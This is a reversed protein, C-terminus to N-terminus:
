GERRSDIDSMSNLLSRKMERLRSIHIQLGNGANNLAAVRAAVAKQDALSPLPIRQRRIGTTNINYNGASSRVEHRLTKRVYQSNILIAVYEPLAKTADLRLRILYSAYVAGKPANEATCCRGVYSPNGNTRVLLIDTASVSYRAQEESSLVVWSLDALDLSGRVVNPIRLIPVAGKRYSDSRVSTGYQCDTLIDGLTADATHSTRNAVREVVAERVAVAASDADQYAVIATEAAWLIEAIRRQEDIPPIAFEQQALTKWNITPSLSGVSIAMARQFFTESQMFFPLFAPLAVDERARLVLAHASCIGEFDAVALKRQYARRRGFIIDGPKFRLKTAEVDDPTGWRRIKLSDPDLHELGVYYEVGAESPNDVRDTISNAMQDFRVVRWGHPLDSVDPVAETPESTITM